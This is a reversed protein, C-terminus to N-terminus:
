LLPVAEPTKRDAWRRPIRRDDPSALAGKARPGTGDAHPLAASRPKLIAAYAPRRSAARRACRVRGSPAGSTRKRPASKSLGERARAAFRHLVAKRRLM